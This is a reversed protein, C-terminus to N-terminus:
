LSFFHLRGHIGVIHSCDNPSLGWLNKYIGAFIVQLSKTLRLPVDGCSKMLARHIYSSFVCASM